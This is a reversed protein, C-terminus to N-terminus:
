NYGLEKLIGGFVDICIEKQEASLDLIWRRQSLEYSSSTSHILGDSDGFEVAEAAQKIFEEDCSVGLFSFLREIHLKCSSFMEEYKIIFSSPDDRGAVNLHWELASRILEAHEAFSNVRDAGFGLFGNRENFKKISVMIDRPDRLLIIKKSGDIKELTNVLYQDQLSKEAFYKVKTPDKGEISRYFKDILGTYDNVLSPVYTNQYFDGLDSYYGFSPNAGVTARRSSFSTMMEPSHSSPLSSLVRLAHYMYQAYRNELPYKAHASIEPHSSLIKMVATSGSRGVSFVIVPKLTDKRNLSAVSIEFNILCIVVQKGTVLKARVTISGCKPLCLVNLPISFGSHMAFPADQVAIQVDPRPIMPADALCDDGSYVLIGIAPCSRPICWGEITLTFVGDFEGVKPQDIFVGVMDESGSNLTDVGSVRLVSQVNSM